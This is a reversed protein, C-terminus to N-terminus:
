RSSTRPGQRARVRRRPLSLTVRAGAQALAIATELASDGGGVVLADRGAFDAPDHLRNFVKDAREEGPVGLRRFDGSRGIAVIVRRATLPEALVGGPALEVELLRGRPRVAAARARVADIGAARAQATLEEVLAEKIEATVALSGAPTFDRPYTYIPKAKPFNVLTSFPEGAELLTFTLGLARAELAAAM